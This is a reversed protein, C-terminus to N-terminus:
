LKRWAFRYVSPIAPYERNPKPFLRRFSLGGHAPMQVGLFQVIRRMQTAIQGWQRKDRRKCEGMQFDLNERPTKM